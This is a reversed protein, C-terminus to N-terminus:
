VKKKILGEFADTLSFDKNEDKLRNIEDREKKDQIRIDVLIKCDPAHGIGRGCISCVKHPKVKSMSLKGIMGHFVSYTYGAKNRHRTFDTITADKDSFFIEIYKVLTEEGHTEYDLKLLSAEKGSWPMAISDNGTLESLKTTYRAKFLNRIVSKGKQAVTDININVNEKSKNISNNYITLLQPNETLRDLSELVTINWGTFKGEKNQVREKIIYGYSELEALAKKIADRGESFQKYLHTLILNWDPPLTMIYAYIGKARASINPNKFIENYVVTYNKNKEIKIVV